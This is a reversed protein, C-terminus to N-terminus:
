DDKDVKKLEKLLEKAFDLGYQTVIMDALVRHFNRNAEKGIKGSCTVTIKKKM